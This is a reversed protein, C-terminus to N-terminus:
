VSTFRLRKGLKFKILVFLLLCILLIYLPFSYHSFAWKDLTLLTIGASIASLLFVPYRETEPAKWAKVVTPVAALADALISFFIAVVGERTIVWGLLGLLSLGGCIYDFNTLKWHAKSNIFSAIFVALPSFGVMFTMLAPWGVGENLQAGFAILPALAWLFWTVRNPRTQGKLTAIVYDLSGWLNLLAAVIVFRPDLM